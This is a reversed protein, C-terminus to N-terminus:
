RWSWFAFQGSAIRTPSAKGSVDAVFIGPPMGPELAAYVLHQGDPSWITDSRQYQDFFPIINLLQGSPVFLAIERAEGTSAELVRLSLKLASDPDGSQVLEEGPSEIVPVFYAIQSSNPSWFFAVVQDDATSTAQEPRDPDIVKLSGALIPATPRAGALYALKEGNPSWAFAIAGQSTVLSKKIIGQNDTLTLANQGEEGEGVLLLEDGSPSWAPAQFAAPPLDLDSEIIGNDLELLTLRADPRTAAAGGTHTIIRRHDPSWDWYFPQGTGLVQVEGQGAGVMQLSLDSEGAKSTLFTVQTSNPAWFLYFPIEDKSEYAEVLEERGIAAIFLSVSEIEDNSRTTGLFALKESDPSWTPFQYFREKEGLGAALQADMTIPHVDEGDEGATYINGDTGVFAILGYQSKFIENIPNQRLLNQSLRCASSTLALAFLALWLIQRKMELNGIGFFGLM